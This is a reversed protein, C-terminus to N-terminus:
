NYPQMQLLDKYMQKPSSEVSIYITPSMGVPDVAFSIVEKGVRCICGYGPYAHVRHLVEIRISLFAVGM